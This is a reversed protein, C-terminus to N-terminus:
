SQNNFVDITTSSTGDSIIIQYQGTVTNIPIIEITLDNVSYKVPKDIPNDTDTVLKSIKGATTALLQTELQKKFGEISNPDQTETKAQNQNQKDAMSIFYSANFPSGGFSPNIFGFRMSSAQSHQVLFLSLLVIAQILKQVFKM